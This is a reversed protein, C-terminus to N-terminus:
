RDGAASKPNYRHSDTHDLRLPLSVNNVIHMKANLALDLDQQGLIDEGSGRDFSVTRLVDEVAIKEADKPYSSDAGAPSPPSASSHRM